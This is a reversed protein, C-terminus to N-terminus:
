DRWSSPVHALDAEDELQELQRELLRRESEVREARRGDASPTAARQEELQAIRGRLSGFQSRWQSANRGARILGSEALGNPSLTVIGAAADIRYTFHNFFSLGLLGVSIGSGISAPVDEVRAGGVEVSDLTMVPQEVVGNATQYIQTRTEPGPELGLAAAVHKPLLVDSAGTDILFPATVRDNLRVQVVMGSSARAVRIHYVRQPDTAGGPLTASRPARRVAASSSTAYSQVRDPAAREAAAAQLAAARRAPPVEDLHMTVHMRGQADTWRYLEAGAPAVGLLLLLPVLRTPRM